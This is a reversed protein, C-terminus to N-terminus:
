QKAKKKRPEQPTLGLFGEAAPQAIARTGEGLLAAAADQTQPFPQNGLLGAAVEPDDRMMQTARIDRTSTDKPGGRGRYRFGPGFIGSTSVSLERARGPASPPPASPRVTIVNRFENLNDLAGRADAEESSAIPGRRDLADLRAQIQREAESVPPGRQMEAAREAAQRRAAALPMSRDMMNRLIAQEATEGLDGLRQYTEQYIEPSYGKPPNPNMGLRNEEMVQKRVDEIRPSTRGTLSNPPTEQAARAAARAAEREAERTLGSHAQATQAQARALDQRAQDLLSTHAGQSTNQLERLRQEAGTLRSTLETPITGLDEGAATAGRAFQREVLPASRVGALRMATPLDIDIGAVSRARQIQNAIATREAATLSEPLTRAVTGAATPATLGHFIAGGVANALGGQLVANITAGTGMPKDDRFSEYGKQLLAQGAGTLGQIAAQGGATGAAMRPLAAAVAPAAMYVQAAAAAADGVHSANPHLRRKEESVYGTPDEPKQVDSPINATAPSGFLRELNDPLGLTFLNTGARVGADVDEAMPGAVTNLKDHAKRALAGFFGEDLPPPTQQKIVPRPKPDYRSPNKGMVYSDVEDAM